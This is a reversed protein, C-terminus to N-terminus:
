NFSFDVFHPAHDSTSATLTDSVVAYEDVTVANKNGGIMIHDIADAASAAPAAPMLFIGYESDYTYANHFCSNTASVTAVDRVSTLGGEILSQYPTSAPRANYDGGTFIPIDAGGLEHNKIAEVCDLLAQADLLRAADGNAATQGEVMSNATFHSDTMGFVKGTAKVKFICWLTNYGKGGKKSGSALCELTNTNYWIPNGSYDVKEEYGNARLWNEIDERGTRMEQFGIVDPMYEAYIATAVKLRNAIPNPNAEQDANLYGWVNQYMIRVDSDKKLNAPAKSAGSWKQGKQLDINAESYKFIEAQFRVNVSIFSFIDNTVVELGKDTVEVNYMGEDAKITTRNTKFRQALTSAM